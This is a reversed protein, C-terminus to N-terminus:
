DEGAVVRPRQLNNISRKPPPGPDPLSATGLPLEWIVSGWGGGLPGAARASPEVNNSTENGDSIECPASSRRSTRVQHASCCIECSAM